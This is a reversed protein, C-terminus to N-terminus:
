GLAAQKAAGALDCYQRMSFRNAALEQETLSRIVKAPSGLLLMGDPAKMSGTVLSGAGVLCNSGIEAGSLVTSGMGVLTNDGVTCGHLVTGHGVTCGQGVHLAHRADTHLVCCDQINTNDGVTIACLDGRLVANYWVGCGSGLTVNGIVRAGEALYVSSHITPETM